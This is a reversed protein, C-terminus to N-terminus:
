EKMQPCYHSILVEIVRRVAPDALRYHITQRERRTKVLGQERLRALHQSLASQSLPVHDLLAGVSFEGMGLRCLIMLRGEHAMAKLLGAAEGARQAMREADTIKRLQKTMGAVM